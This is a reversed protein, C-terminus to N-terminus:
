INETGNAGRVRGTSARVILEPKALPSLDAERGEVISLLAEASRAGWRVVDQRVTTLAPRVHAALPVDDFGVVSLDDPVSLGRQAAVSMGSIAMLDNAYIIATPAPNRDLLEHTATEGGLGSFDAVAFPGEPLGASELSRRWAEMRAESHLYGSAGAVHGIRTHGLARLHDVARAIGRGDDMSLRPVAGDAPGDGVIVAPLGLAEVLSPRPDERRIDTLFVGDVRGEGALREYSRREAAETGVMQLVLAYGHAELASEVGALFQPFFPDTSLLEPSRRIVLGLALSRDRMLARARASPEWGLEAAADLIRQRTEAGVGPRDNFVISVASKSVQALAAVDGIRPRPAQRAAM